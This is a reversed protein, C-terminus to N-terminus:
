YVSSVNLLGPQWISGYLEIEGIKWPDRQGNGTLKFSDGKGNCYITNKYQPYYVSSCSKIEEKGNLVLRSVYELWDTNDLAYIVVYRIYAYGEINVQVWMDHIYYKTLVFTAPDGDYLNHELNDSYNEIEAGSINM